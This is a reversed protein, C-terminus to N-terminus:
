KKIARGISSGILIVLGIVCCIVGYLSQLTGFYPALGLITGGLGVGVGFFVEISRDANLKEGLIAAKKDAEHFSTVYSKFNERDTEAEELMDLLMKQVGSNTLEEDTLQRRVNRLSQRRSSPITTQQPAIVQESIPKEPPKENQEPIQKKNEM